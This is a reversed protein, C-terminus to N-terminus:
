EHQLPSNGLCGTLTSWNGAVIPLMASQGQASFRRLEVRGELVYRLHQVTEGRSVLLTRQGYHEMKCSAALKQRVDIPLLGFIKSNSLITFPDRPLERMDNSRYCQM